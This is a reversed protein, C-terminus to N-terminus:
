SDNKATPWFIKIVEAVFDHAVFNPNQRKVGVDIQKASRVIWFGGVFGSM